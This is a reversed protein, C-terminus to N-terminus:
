VASDADIFRRCWLEICMLAFIPYAAEVRGARDNAVLAHVAQPDFIGRRGLSAESLLDEVVDRLEHRLWHRLPAGFGTKPRYIVDPPLTGEMAKKFIWKGVKGRQKYALPLRAALSVLDRDLLPVRVEVGEAMSMKDTYNLNHDALFHKGELYLMRNLAPVDAPLRELSSLLPQAPDAGVLQQVFTQSFLSRTLDPASWFFYSAIRPDGDLHAYRLLRGVRRTIPNSAPLQGGRRALYRRASLPLWQVYNEHDLAYHRQYGTFLDDGGAGSLLVKIGQSRALHSIFLVNLPAPDAQPEDLHDIMDGLRDIMEPGVYITHLDVGLHKAVKQAYPLDPTFGESRAVHGKFGITFCPLRGSPSYDRAMAVVASSDLGGSLFAGVPVDAVMQRRVAERLCARVEGVADEASMTSLPQDYPLDYFQWLREVRHRRIRMACGPALKKVARLMTRPAPCWLYTLYHQIALPDLERSVAAERLLAKLESAFLFGRETEAFYLPKVGMGDRAVFLSQDRSDWIAFAFIGNLRDLMAEGEQMYLNLLVETDSHGRFRCGQSLLQDRLERYNYIEGNFVIAAINAEDWMPQHGAPSLDIIALRRHALGVSYREMVLAGADDPGRHSLSASMRDLLAADFQGSFGAIGCM